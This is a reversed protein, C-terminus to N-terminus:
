TVGIKLFLSSAVHLNVHEIKCTSSVSIQCTVTLTVRPVCQDRTLHRQRLIDATPFQSSDDNNDELIFM